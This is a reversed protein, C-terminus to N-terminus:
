NKESDEFQVKVLPSRQVFAQIEQQRGWKAVVQMLVQKRIAEDTIPIATAPLDAQTSQKLHFTFKPNVVLNAYWDRKGPLGSIYIVGDFNHFAIEIKHPKGTKRGITTIDILKDLKLALEIEPNM